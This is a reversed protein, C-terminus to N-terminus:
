LQPDSSRNSFISKALQKGESHRDEKKKSQLHKGYDGTFEKWVALAGTPILFERAPVVSVGVQGIGIHQVGLPEAGGEISQSLGEPAVQRVYTTLVEAQAAQWVEVDDPLGLAPSRVEIVAKAQM